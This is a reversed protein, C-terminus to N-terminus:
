GEKILGNKVLEQRAYVVYQQCEKVENPTLAYDLFRWAKQADGQFQTLILLLMEHIYQKRTMQKKMLKDTHEFGWTAFTTSAFRAFEQEEKSIEIAM